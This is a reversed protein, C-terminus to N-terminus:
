RHSAGDSSERELCVAFRAGGGPSEEVFITGGMLEVLRRCIALGLGAGGRQADRSRDLRVFRGFIREREESDIGPGSDDVYLCWRGDREAVHVSVTTDLPAHVIANAVLASAVQLVRLEDGVPRGGVGLDGIELTVRHQRAIMDHRSHLAEALAATDVPSKALDVRGSDLDALALLTGTLEMLRGAEQRIIRAFRARQEDDAAVGDVLAGAFGQISTIPTRIEHSVDGVFDRQATYAADVRSSMANFAEALAAVEEDGEVEVQLGWSGGAIAEAGERLRVLPATVRRAVFGGAFWSGAVMVITVALAILGGGRRTSALERLPQVAVLYGDGGLGAVPAAVIIVRGARALPATGSRVGREDPDGTLREIDYRELTGDPASSHRVAGEADTLVLHTGILRAEVEFIEARIGELPQPGSLDLPEGAALGAAIASVQRVLEATRLSEAHQLWAVYLAVALLLSATIAVGAVALRTRRVVTMRAREAGVSM